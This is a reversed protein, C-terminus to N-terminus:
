ARSLYMLEPGKSPPCSSVGRKAVVEVHHVHHLLRLQEHAHQACNTLWSALDLERGAAVVDQAFVVESCM